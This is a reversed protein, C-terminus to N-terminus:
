EMDILLDFQIRFNGNYDLSELGTQVISVNGSKTLVFGMDYGSWDPKYAKTYKIDVIDDFIPVIKNKIYNPLANLNVWTTFPLANGSAVSGAIVIMLHSGSLSWKSYSITVGTPNNVTLNGEIFRPNHNKDLFNECVIIPDNDEDVFQQIDDLCVTGSLYYRGSFEVEKDLGSGGYITKNDTLYIDKKFQADEDCVVKNNDDDFYLVGSLYKAWSGGVFYNTGNITVVELGTFTYPNDAGNYKEVTSVTYVVGEIDLKELVASAEDEPNAIVNSEHLPGQPGQPGVLNLQLQWQNNVKRYMSGKTLGYQPNDGRIIYIDGDQFSDDTPLPGFGFGIKPSRGQPGTAGTEGQPGQPGQIPDPLASGFIQKLKKLEETLYGVQEQLNRYEKEDITIM